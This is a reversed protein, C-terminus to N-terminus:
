PRSSGGCRACRLSSSPASGAPRRRVSLQCDSSDARVASSALLGFPGGNPSGRRSGCTEATRNICASPHRPQSQDDQRLLDLRRSRFGQSTRQIWRSKGERLHRTPEAPKEPRGVQKSSPTRARNSPFNTPNTNAEPSSIARRRVTEPGRDSLPGQSREETGRAEAPLPFAAIPDRAGIPRAQDNRFGKPRWADNQDGVFATRSTGQVRSGGGPGLKM